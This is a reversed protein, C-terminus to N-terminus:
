RYWVKIIDADNARQEFTINGTDNIFSFVSGTHKLFADGDTGLSLAKDDIIRITKSALINSAGGDLRLYETTGGSGDDNKFIIDGDDKAQEIYLDGTYNSIYSNSGNHALVFDTQSGLFLQVSDNLRLSDASEDWEMYRGSTAGFFKVDHGTDDAGVTITGDVQTNRLTLGTGAFQATITGGTVIQLNNDSSETLYTHTGGDFYLKKTAALNVHEAFTANQSSDLTLATTSATGLQISGASEENVIHFVDGSGGFGVYAHRDTGRFYSHYIPGDDTSKLILIQDSAGELTLTSSINAAGNVDLTGDVILTDASQDWHMKKGSTAGYLIVDVGSDDVGVTVASDSVNLVEDGDSPMIKFTDGVTLLRTYKSSDAIRIEGIADGSSKFEAIFNESGSDVMLQKSVNVTTASGDLTIYATNGGSGDDCNFVIDKSNTQQELILNGTGKALVYSNSGDHYVELDNSAGYHTKGNDALFIDSGGTITLHGTSNLESFSSIVTEDTGGNTDTTSGDLLTVTGDFVEIKRINLPRGTSYAVKEAYIYSDAGATGAQDSTFIVDNSHTHWEYSESRVIQPKSTTYQARYFIDLVIPQHYSNESTELYVRCLTNDAITFLRMRTGQAPLTYSQKSGFAMQSNVAIDSYFEQAM